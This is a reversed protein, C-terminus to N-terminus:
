PQGPVAVALSTIAVGSHGCALFADLFGSFVPVPQRWSMADFRKMEDNVAKSCCM